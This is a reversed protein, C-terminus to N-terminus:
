DRCASVLLVAQFVEYDYGLRPWGTASWGTGLAIQAFYAGDWKAAFGCIRFIFRDTWLEGKTHVFSLSHSTDYDQVQCCASLVINQGTSTPLAQRVMMDFAACLGTVVIRSWLALWAVTRGERGDTPQTAWRLM